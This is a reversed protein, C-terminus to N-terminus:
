EGPDVALTLTLEAGGALAGVLDRDLDGAATDAGVLVTRDDVYDSTRLVHSRENEFSLDPDGRGTVRETYGGADLTATVTADADRCAEVFAESVDAPVRDAEIGVICDGAPTLYDDGTVELTSTHEATVNAHGRATVVETLGDDGM